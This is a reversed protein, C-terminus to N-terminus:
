VAFHVLHLHLFNIWLYYIELLTFLPPSNFWCVLYEIRWTNFDTLTSFFNILFYNVYILLLIFSIRSFILLLILFLRSFYQNIFSRFTSLSGGLLWWLMLTILWVEGILLIGLISYSCCVSWPLLRTLYFCFHGILSSILSRSGKLLQRFFRNM